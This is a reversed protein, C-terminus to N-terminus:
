FLRVGVNRVTYAIHETNWLYVSLEVNGSSTEPLTLLYRFDRWGNEDPLQEKLPFTKYFTLEGNETMSITCQVDPGKEWRVKGEFFLVRPRTFVKPDRLKLVPGFDNERNVQFEGAVATPEGKVEWEKAEEAGIWKEFAPKQRDLQLFHFLNTEEGRNRKRCVTIKGDTGVLELQDIIGPYVKFIDSLFLENQFVYYRAPIRLAAKLDAPHNRMVVYGIRHMYYFPVNRPLPDLIVLKEDKPIGLSTLLRESQSFNRIVMANLGWRESAHRQEQTRGNLWFFVGITLITLTWGIEKPIRVSGLRESVLCLLVVVPVFFVDLAYYDHAMFQICMLCFFTVSGALLFLTFWRAPMWEQAIRPRFLRYILVLLGALVVGYHAKTVYEYKWNRVIERIIELFQPWSNAPMLTHLFMGGYENRLYRNYLSYGIVAAFALIVTVTKKKRNEKERLFILFEQGTWALLPILFTLRTMAALALFAMGLVFHRFNGNRRYSFGYYLGIIATSLTPVSPIFRVQYFTYVPSTAVFFVILVSLVTSRNFLFALKYLYVFGIMSILLMYIAFIMPSESGTLKMVVAPIYNHIPFDVATVLTQRAADWTDPYRYHYVLTQPKFFNLDNEVFGRALAYHDSQTWLHMGAPGEQVHNWHMFFAYLILIVTLVLVSRKSPQTSLTSSM